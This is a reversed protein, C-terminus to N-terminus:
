RMFNGIPLFLLTSLEVLPRESLIELCKVGPPRVRYAPNMRPLPEVIENAHSDPNPLPLHFDACGTSRTARTRGLLTCLNGSPWSEPTRVLLKALSIPM